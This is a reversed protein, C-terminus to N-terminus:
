CRLNLDGTRRPVASFRNKLSHLELGVYNREVDLHGLDRAQLCQRREQGNLIRGHDHDTRKGLFAGFHGQLRKLEPGHIKKGLGLSILKGLNACASVQENGFHESRRRTTGSM